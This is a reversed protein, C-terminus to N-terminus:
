LLSYTTNCGHRLSGSCLYTLLMVGFASLYELKFSKSDDHLSSSIFPYLIHVWWLMLVVDIWM